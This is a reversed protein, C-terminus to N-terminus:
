AKEANGGRRKLVERRRGQGIIIRPRLRNDRLSTESAFGDRRAGPMNDPEDSSTETGANNDSGIM